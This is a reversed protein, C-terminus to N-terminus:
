ATRFRAAMAVDSTISWRSRMTRSTSATTPWTPWSASAASETNFNHSFLGAIQPTGKKALNGWYSGLSISATDKESDFPKRTNLDISGAIGGEIMDATQNKSVVVSGILEPSVTSFNLGQGGGASFVERGNFLTSTYPLGQLSIDSGQISFHDPDAAVGFASVAVGPVRKLAETVSTDPLSGADQASIADVVTDAYRKIEQARNLSAAYGNVTM